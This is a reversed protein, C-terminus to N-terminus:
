IGKKYTVVLVQWAVFVFVAVLFLTKQIAFPFELAVNERKASLFEKQTPPIEAGGGIM